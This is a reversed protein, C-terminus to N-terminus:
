SARSKPRWLSGIRLRLGGWVLRLLQFQGPVRPPSLFTAPHCEPFDMQLSVHESAGTRPTELPEVSAGLFQFAQVDRIGMNYFRGSVPRLDISRIQKDPMHRRLQEAFSPWINNGAGPPPKLFAHNNGCILIIKDNPFETQWTEQTNQAMGADREAWAAKVNILGPDFCFVQFGTQSARQTLALMESSGRGDPWPKAYFDPIPVAPDSLWKRLNEQEFRPAELGLGRYGREYLMPLLGAVIRPIEETGHIEGFFLADARDALEAIPELIERPLLYDDITLNM